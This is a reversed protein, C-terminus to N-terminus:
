IGILGVDDSVDVQILHLNAPYSGGLISVTPIPQYYNLAAPWCRAHQVARIIHCM